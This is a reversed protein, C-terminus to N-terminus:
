VFVENLNLIVPETCQLIQETQFCSDYYALNTCIKPHLSLLIQICISIVQKDPSLGFMRSVFCEIHLQKYMGWCHFIIFNCDGCTQSVAHRKGFLEKLIEKCYELPTMENIIKVEESPERKQKKAPRSGELLSHHGSMDGAMGYTPTYSASM